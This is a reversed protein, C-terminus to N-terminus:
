RASDHRAPEGVPLSSLRWAAILGGIAVPVVAAFVWFGASRAVEQSMGHSMGALNAAVAAIAAGAAASTLGVTNIGVAGITREDGSLSSLIRQSMFSWSLGFGAGLVIGALAVGPVSGAPFVLASLGMGAVVCVPGLRLMFIPWRGILGSVTLGAITWAVAELAVIYGAALAGLGALAQLLAAGYV